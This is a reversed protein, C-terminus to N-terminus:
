PTVLLVHRVIFVTMGATLMFVLTAAISRPSGRGIGCVGHGSTCGNGMRTGFGVLFGAGIITPWRTMIGPGIAGSALVSFMAGAAVLGIVFALDIARTDRRGDVLRGVIGSIGAVRGHVLLLLAAALGIVVGGILPAIVSM